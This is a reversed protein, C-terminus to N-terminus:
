VLYRVVTAVLLGIVMLYLWPTGHWVPGWPLLWAGGAWMAVVLILFLFLPSAGVAETQASHRWGLGWTLIGSLILALVLILLFGVLFRIWRRDM